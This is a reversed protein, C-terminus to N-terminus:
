HYVSVALTIPPFLHCSSDEQACSRAGHIYFRLNMYHCAYKRKGFLNPVLKSFKTSGSKANYAARQDHQVDSLMDTEVVLREPALPYDNHTDHLHDPYDLDSEVVYGMDQDDTQALWDIAQWESEMIWEFKGDPLPQSMSWGYLNNADVYMLYKSPQSPDYHENMYKNDAKGHRKSIMAVGGRLNQHIM